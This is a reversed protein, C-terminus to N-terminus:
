SRTSRADPTDLLEAHPHDLAAQGARGRDATVIAAVQLGETAAILPAHFVRGALGYGVIGLRLDGM